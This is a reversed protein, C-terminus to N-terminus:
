IINIGSSLAARFRGVALIYLLTSSADPTDRAILYLVSLADDINLIAFTEAGVSSGTDFADLSVIKGTM